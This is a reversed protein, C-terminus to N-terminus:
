AEELKNSIVVVSSPASPIRWILFFFLLVGAKSSIIEKARHERAQLCQDRLVDEPGKSRSSFTPLCLNSFDVCDPNEEVTTRRNLVTIPRGTQYIFITESVMPFDLRQGEGRTM